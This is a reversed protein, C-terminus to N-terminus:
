RGHVRVNSQNASLGQSPNATYFYISASATRATNACSQAGVRSFLQITSAAPDAPAGPLCCLGEACQLVEELKMLGLLHLKSMLDSEVTGSIVHPLIYVIVLELPEYIFDLSHYSDSSTNARKM